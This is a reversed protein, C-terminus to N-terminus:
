YNGRIQENLDRHKDDNDQADFTNDRLQWMESGTQQPRLM